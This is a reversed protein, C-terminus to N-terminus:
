KPQTSDVPAPSKWGVVSELKAVEAQVATEARRVVRKMLEVDDKIADVEKVTLERGVQLMEGGLHFPAIVVHIM